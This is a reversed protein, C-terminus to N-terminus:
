AAALAGVTVGHGDSGTRQPTGKHDASPASIPAPAPTSGAPEPNHTRHDATSRGQMSGSRRAGPASNSRGAGRDAGPKAFFLAPALTEVRLGLLVAACLAHSWAHLALQRRYAFCRRAIADGFVRIGAHQYIAHPLPFVTWLLASTAREADRLYIQAARLNWLARGLGYGVPIM